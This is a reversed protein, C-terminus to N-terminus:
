DLAGRAAQRQAKTRERLAQLQERARMAAADSEEPATRGSKLAAEARVRERLNDMAQARLQRAGDTEPAAASVSPPPAPQHTILVLELRVHLRGCSQIPWGLRNLKRASTALVDESPVGCERVDVLSPAIGLFFETKRQRLRGEPVWSELELEHCGPTSPLPTYTYGVVSSQGWRNLAYISFYLMPRLYPGTKGRLKFELPCSIYAERQDPKGVIPNPAWLAQATCSVAELTSNEGFATWSVGSGSQLSTPRLDVEYAVFSGVVVDVYLL